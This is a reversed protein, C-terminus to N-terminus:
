SPCCRAQNYFQTFRVGQSALRDINPTHIEGGYCGLDSFGLDDALILLINPPKSQSPGAASTAAVLSLWVLLSVLASRLRSERPAHCAAAQAFRLGLCTRSLRKMPM